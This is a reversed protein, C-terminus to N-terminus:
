FNTDFLIIEQEVSSQGMYRLKAGELVGEVILVVPGSLTRFGYYRLKSARTIRRKLMEPKLSTPLGTRMEVNSQRYRRNIKGVLQNALERVWDDVNPERTRTRLASTALATPCCLHLTAASGGGACEVSAVLEPLGGDPARDSPESPAVAVNWMQFLDVTAGCIITDIIQSHEPV